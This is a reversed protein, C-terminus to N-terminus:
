SAPQPHFPGRAWLLYLVVLLNIALVVLRSVSLQRAIEYIEVPVYLAGSAVGFWRAWTRLRWLGYAEVFRMTAYALTGAILLGFRVHSFARAGEIFVHPYHHTSDLHFGRVIQEAIHEANHHAWGGVTGAVVVVLAGKAAEITAIARVASRNGHQKSGHPRSPQPERTPM